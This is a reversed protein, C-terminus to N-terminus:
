NGRLGDFHIFRVWEDTHNIEYTATVTTSFSSAVARFMKEAVRVERPPRRKRVVTWLDSAKQKLDARVWERWFSRWVRPDLSDISEVFKGLDMTLHVERREAKAVLRDLWGDFEAAFRPGYDDKAEGLERKAAPHFRKGYRYERQSM